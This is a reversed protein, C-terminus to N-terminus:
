LPEILKSYTGHQNLVIANSYLYLVAAYKLIGYYKNILWQKQRHEGEEKNNPVHGQVEIQKNKTMFIGHMYIKKITSFSLISDFSLSISNGSVSRFM